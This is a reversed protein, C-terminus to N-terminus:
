NSKEDRLKKFAEILSVVARHDQKEQLVSVIDLIFETLLNRVDIASIDNHVESLRQLDEAIEKFSKM